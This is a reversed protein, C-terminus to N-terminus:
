SEVFHIVTGNRLGYESLLRNGKLLAIPNEATLYCNKANTTDIGLDYAANLGIVLENATINLPIEVDFAQNRNHVQFIVTVSEKAM